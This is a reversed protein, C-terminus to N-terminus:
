HAGPMRQRQGGSLMAGNEGVVTQIGDPLAEIFETANAAAAAAVLSMLVWAMVQTRQLSM